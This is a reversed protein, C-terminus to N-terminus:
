RRKGTMRARSDFGRADLAEAVHDAMRFTDALFLKILMPSFRRSTRAQWAERRRNWLDFLVPVFRIVLAIALALKRSDLGLRELPRLVPAIADLMEQVTTTMSLLDALLIMLLLRGASVAAQNHGELYWQLAYIIALLPLLPRLRVLRQLAASGLSAYVALVMAIALAFIWWLSLSLFLTVAVLLGLLKAGAPVAHLWTRPYLHGGIM